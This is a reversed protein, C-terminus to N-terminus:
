KKNTTKYYQIAIDDYEDIANTHILWSVWSQECHDRDWWFLADIYRVVNSKGARKRDWQAASVTQNSRGGLLV